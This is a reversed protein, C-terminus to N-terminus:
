CAPVVSWSDQGTRQLSVLDSSTLRGLPDRSGRAYARLVSRFARDAEVHDVARATVCSAPDGPAVGVLSAAFAAGDAVSGNSVYALHGGRADGRGGCVTDSRNCYDRSKAAYAPAESAITRRTLGLPNGFVVVAAVRPELNAPLVRSRISTSRAGVAISTVTAGQSYGGLVFQTGPCRAAMSTVHSTMDGAGPGASTQSANASYNVAYSTVTMTPLADGLDSVFPRGVIGLGRPEGTGRAFVVHVDPCDGTSTAVPGAVPAAATAPTAIAATSTLAATTILAAAVKRGGPTISM